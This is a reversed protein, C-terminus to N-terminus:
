SLVTTRIWTWVGSQNEFEMIAREPILGASASVPLFDVDQLVSEDSANGDKDVSIFTKRVASIQPGSPNNPDDVLQDVDIGTVSTTSYSTCYVKAIASNTKGVASYLEELVSRVNNYPGNAALNASPNSYGTVDLSVILPEAKLEEDVYGKSAVSNDPDVPDALSNLTKNRLSLPTGVGIIKQNNVTITGTSSISLPLTTSIASGDLSINDVTLNQLVGVRILGEAYLVTNHIRDATLITTGGIKLQKSAVIDINESSTWADEAGIWNFTKDGDTSRLTIGGGDIAVDNGGANGDSDTALEINKDNVQLTEASIFTTSGNATFNGDVTFDGTVRADTNVDFGVSPSNTYIGLRKISANAYLVDDFANGRKVRLVFDKNKQQNELSTINNNTTEIRLATYVTDDVGVTLGNENKVALSGTTSTDRDTKMFNVESFEEGSVSILSQTSKATGQWAFATDIPNFGKRIIQRKPINVDDQDIPYGTINLQPRFETRSYIGTLLGGIYMFLATQEQGTRDIVTVAEVLTKGQGANYQPGVLVIDAGDYFYLKNNFSDIWIDGTVLNPQTQSVLAGSATKFTDGTYVKLRQESTDYWLQGVLPAGPASSQAFNEILKVFNENMKEGFGKYNRGILTIDTSTEDIQGDVLDVILEGNTKNIKYSM